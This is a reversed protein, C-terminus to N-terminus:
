VNELDVRQLEGGFLVDEWISQRGWFASSNQKLALTDEAFAGWSNKIAGEVTQEDLEGSSIKQLAHDATALQVTALFGHFPGDPTPTVLPYDYWNVVHEFATLYRNRIAEHDQGDEHTDMFDNIATAVTKTGTLHTFAMVRGIFDYAGYRSVKNRMVNRLTDALDEEQSDRYPLSEPSEGALRWLLQHLKAQQYVANRIEQAKLKEAGTNYRQFIQFLDRPELRNFTFITFPARNIKRQMNVPLDDFFKSAGENLDEKPGWGSEGAGFSKFRKGLFGVKGREEPTACYRALTELRQRGDIVYKTGSKPDENLLLSPIPLEMLISEIFRRQKKLPWVFNRQWSPNLVLEGDFIMDLLQRAYPTTQQGVGLNFSGRAGEDKDDDEDVFEIQTSAIDLPTAGFNTRQNLSALFETYANESLDTGDDSLYDDDWESVYEIIHRANELPTDRPSLNLAVSAVRWFEEINSLASPDTISLLGGIERMREALFDTDLSTTM